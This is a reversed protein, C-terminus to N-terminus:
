REETWINEEAGEKWVVETYTLGEIDSVLNWVRVSGCSESAPELGGIDWRVEQVGMLDLKFKSIEEAV